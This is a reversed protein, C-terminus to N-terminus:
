VNSMVDSTTIQKAWDHWIMFYINRVSFRSMMTVIVMFLKLNFIWYAHLEVTTLSPTDDM